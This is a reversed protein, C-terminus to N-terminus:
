IWATPTRVPPVVPQFHRFRVGSAGGGGSGGGAAGGLLALANTPGLASQLRAPGGATTPDNTWTISRNGIQPAGSGERMPWYAYPRASIKAPCEGSAMRAIDANSPLTGAWIALDQMRGAGFLSAGNRCMINLTNNGFNGTSATGGVTSGSIFQGNLFPLTQSAAPFDRLVLMCVHHWMGAAPQAITRSNEAPGVSTGQMYGFTPGSRNPRIAFGNSAAYDAGYEIAITGNGSFADWYLWFAVAVRNTFSLDLAVAGRQNTGNFVRAM